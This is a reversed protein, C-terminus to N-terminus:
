SEHSEPLSTTAYKQSFHNNRMNGFIDKPINVNEKVVIM